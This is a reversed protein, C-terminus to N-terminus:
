LLLWDLLSLVAGVPLAIALALLAAGLPTLRPAPLSQGFVTKETKM